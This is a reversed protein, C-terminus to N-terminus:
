DLDELKNADVTGIIQPTLCVIRDNRWECLEKVYRSDVVSTSPPSQDDTIDFHNNKMM